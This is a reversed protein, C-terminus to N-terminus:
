QSTTIVTTFFVRQWDTTQRGDIPSRPTHVYKTIHTSFRHAHNYIIDDCSVCLRTFARARFLLSFVVVFFFFFDLRSDPLCVREYLTSFFVRVDDVRVVLLFLFFLSRSRGFSFSLSHSRSRSRTLFFILYADSHRDTQRDLHRDTQRSNIDLQAEGSEGHKKRRKVMSRGVSPEPRVDVWMSLVVAHLTVQLMGFPPSDVGSERSPVDINIFSIWCASSVALTSNKWWYKRENTKKWIM